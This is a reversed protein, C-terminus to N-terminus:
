IVGRWLALTFRHDTSCLRSPRSFGGAVTLARITTMHAAEVGVHAPATDTAVYM